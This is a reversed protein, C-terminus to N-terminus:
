NALIESMTDLHPKNILLLWERTSTAKLGQKTYYSFKIVDNEKYNANYQHMDNIYFDWTFTNYVLRLLSM